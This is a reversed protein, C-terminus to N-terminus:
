ENELEEEPLIVDLTIEPVIINLEIEPIEIDLEIESMIILRDNVWYGRTAHSLQTM